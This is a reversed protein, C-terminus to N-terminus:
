GLITFGFTGVLQLAFLALMGAAVTWYAVRTLIKLNGKDGAATEAASLLLPIFGIYSLAFLTSYAAPAGKVAFAVAAALWSKWTITTRKAQKFKKWYASQKRWARLWRLNGNRRM